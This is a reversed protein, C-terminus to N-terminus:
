RHRVVLKKSVSVGAGDLKLMYVGAAWDASNIQFDYEDNWVSKFVVQGLLNTITLDIAQSTKGTKHLSVWENAPNPSLVIESSIGDFEVERLESYSVEGSQSTAVIRYRNTGIAPAEDRWEHVMNLNQKPILQGLREFSTNQADSREVHYTALGEAELQWTLSVSETQRYAEFFTWEAPLIIPVLCAVFNPIGLGNNRGLLNVTNNVFNCGVGLVDPNNIQGLFPQYALCVYIRGDPGMQLNAKRNSGTSIITSSANILAPSGAVLNYQQITSGNYQVVYLVDSNTSFEVGYANSFAGSTNLTIPNFVTGSNPDFSYIETTPNVTSGGLAYALRTGNPSGKLSGFRNGGAFVSGVTSIVPGGSIGTSSLLYARFQNTFMDHVIIWYDNGNAHCIATLSERTNGYLVQNKLTVAGLGGALSMDVVSYHAGNGGDTWNRMTFVYYLTTSGPQPVIVASQCSISSGLLGTGNSMPQHLANWITNGHTYFLLNGAGDAISASGEGTYMASNSQGIAAGSLFDVGAGGGMYWKVAENQGYVAGFCFLVVVILYRGRKM